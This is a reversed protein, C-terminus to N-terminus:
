QPPQKGLGVRQRVSFSYKTQSDVGSAFLHEVSQRAFGTSSQTGKAQILQAPEHAQLQMYSYSVDPM